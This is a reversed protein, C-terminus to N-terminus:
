NSGTGVKLMYDYNKDFNDNYFPDHELYKGYHEQAYDVESVYREVADKKKDIGRSKSEYHYLEVDPLFVNYYGHELLKLGFEADNFQVALEENLGGLEEYKTRPIMLCAATCCFVDNPIELTHLYGKEDHPKRYYRHAFGGGKGSIVGGHQITGDGYYLKAGVSGVHDLQAYSLMKEMWDKTIVETDNNLLILYEGHSYRVAMNNIYSFNFPSDVKVVHVNQHDRQIKEFYSFTEEKESRNDAIIVEYNQYTSCDFISNLCRSLDETDDKTPIIISVLPKEQLGCSVYCARHDATERISANIGKENLYEQIIKQDFAADQDVGCAIKEIHKWKLNQDSLHLLIRWANIDEGEFHKLLETKVVFLDGIYNFGRLTDPSYDPKLEPDHRQGNNLHDHDFYIVDEGNIENLCSFFLDYPKVHESTICTYETKISDTSIQNMSFVPYGPYVSPDLNKGIFTINQFSEKNITEDQFTLWKQYQQEDSPDYYRQGYRSINESEHRYKHVYGKLIEKPIVFHYQVIWIYLAKKILGLKSSNNEM